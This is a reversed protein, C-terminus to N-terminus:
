PGSGVAPARKTKLTPPKSLEYDVELERYRKKFHEFREHEGVGDGVDM